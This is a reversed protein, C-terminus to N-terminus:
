EGYETYKNSPAAYNSEDGEEALPKHVGLALLASQLFPLFFIRSLFQRLFPSIIDKSLM